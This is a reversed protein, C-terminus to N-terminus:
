RSQDKWVVPEASEEVSWAFVPARWIVRGFFVVVHTMSLSSVWKGDTGIEFNDATRAGLLIAFRVWWPWPPSVSRIKM